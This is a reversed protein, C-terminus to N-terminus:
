ERTLLTIMQVVALLVFLFGFVANLNYKKLANIFFYKYRNTLYAISILLGFAGVASGMTFVFMSLTSIQHLLGNSNFFIVVSLWFPFLQFNFLALLFGIVIENGNDNNVKSTIDTQNKRLINFVGISIFFPVVLWQLININQKLFNMESTSIAMWSYILEPIVGGIAIYIASKFGKDLIAKIVALNVPGLQVSGLFSIFVSSIFLLFINM